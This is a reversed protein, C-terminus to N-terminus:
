PKCINKIKGLCQLMGGPSNLIISSERLQPKPDLMDYCTESMITKEAGTDIKFNVNRGEIDLNVRWPPVTDMDSDVSGMFVSQTEAATTM